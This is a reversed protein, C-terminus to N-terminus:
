GTKKVGGMGAAKAAAISEKMWTATPFEMTDCSLVLSGPDRSDSVSLRTSRSAARPGGEGEESGSDSLDVRSLETSPPDAYPDHAPVAVPRKLSSGKKSGSGGSSSAGPGRASLKGKGGSATGVGGGGAKSKSGKAGGAKAGAKKKKKPAPSFAGGAGGGLAGGAGKSPAFPDTDGAFASGSGSASASSTATGTGTGEEEIAGHHHHHHGAMPDRCLDPDDTPALFPHSLLQLTDARKSTDRQFCQCTHPHAHSLSLTSPHPASLLYATHSTFSFPVASHGECCLAAGHM